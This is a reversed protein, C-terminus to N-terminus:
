RAVSMPHHVQDNVAIGLREVTGGNLELVARVPGPSVLTELSQPVAREVIGVIRGDATLFLMDLPILTNKMWMAVPLDRKFDFLMGADAALRSRYMLGRARQADTEAIEVSFELERGDATAITLPAQRMPADASAGSAIALLLLLGPIWRMM